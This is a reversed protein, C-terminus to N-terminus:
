LSEMQYKQLKKPMHLQFKEVRHRLFLINPRGKKWYFAGIANEENLFSMYSDTFLPKEECGLLIKSAYVIDAKSCINAISFGAEKVIEKKPLEEVYVSIESKNLLSTFILKIIKSESSVGYLSTGGILLILIYKKM